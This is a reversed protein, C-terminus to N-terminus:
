RNQTPSRVPRFRVDLMETRIAEKSSLLWPEATCFCYRDVDYLVKM